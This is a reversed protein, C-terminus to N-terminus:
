AREGIRPPLKLKKIDDEWNIASAYAKTLKTEDTQISALNGKAMYFLLKKAIDQNEKRTIMRKSITEWLLGAWPKSSLALKVESIRRLATNQALGNEMFLKVVESIIQLGVPRFLLHGGDKNRLDSITLENEKLLKLATFYKQLGNWYRVAKRYYNTITIDDPRIRLFDKWEAATKDKLIIGLTDYLSVITTICRDDNTPISKGLVKTNIREDEFLKYEDVMRRTIIAITDDEDLAIIDRQGVPKAYRNLTSFLRRTRQRNAPDQKASVFIIAVEEDELPKDVKVAGDIAAVRHQGDIAFLKEKGSLLLYGVSGILYDPLDSLSLKANGRLTLEVWKPSGGYVGIIISNFFRQKQTQLYRVIESTRSTVARQLLDNLSKSEHIDEAFDVRAAIEKMKMFSIYYIWDGMKARLAPLYLSTNSKEKKM